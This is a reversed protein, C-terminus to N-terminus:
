NQLAQKNNLHYVQEITAYITDKCCFKNEIVYFVQAFSWEEHDRECHKHGRGGVAVRISLHDRPVQRRKYLCLPCAFTGLKLWPHKAYENLHFVNEWILFCSECYIM